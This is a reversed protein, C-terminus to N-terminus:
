RERLQAPVISDFRALELADFASRCADSEFLPDETVESAETGAWFFCSVEPWSGSTTAIVTSGNEPSLELEVQFDGDVGEVARAAVVYQRPVGAEDTVALGFHAEEPQFTGRLMQRTEDLDFALDLGFSASGAVCELGAEFQLGDPFSDHVYLRLEGNCSYERVDPVVLAIPREFTFEVEDSGCAGVLCLAVAFRYKM